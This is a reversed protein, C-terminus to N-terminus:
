NIWPFYLGSRDVRGIIISNSYSISHDSDYGRRFWEFYFVYNERACIIQISSSSYAIEQAAEIQQVHVKVNISFSHITFAYAIHPLFQIHSIGAEGGSELHAIFCYYSISIIGQAM